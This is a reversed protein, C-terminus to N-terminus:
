WRGVKGKGKRLKLNYRNESIIKPFIRETNGLKTITIYHLVQRILFPAWTYEAGNTNASYGGCNDCQTATKREYALTDV